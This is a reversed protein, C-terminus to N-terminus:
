LLEDVGICLAEAIRRLRYIKTVAIVAPQEEYAKVQWWEIVDPPWSTDGTARKALEERSLGLRERASRIRQGIDALEAETLRGEDNGPPGSPLGQHTAEIIAQLREIEALLEPIDQRAYAIFEMDAETAYLDANPQNIDCAVLGVGMGDGHRDIFDSSMFHSCDKYTHRWPGPTAAECRKQIGQLREESLM